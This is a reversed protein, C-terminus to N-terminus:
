LVDLAIGEPAPVDGAVRPALWAVLSPGHGRQPPQLDVRAEILPAEEGERYPALWAELGRRVAEPSAGGRRLRLGLVTLAQAFRGTALVHDLQTRAAGLRTALDRDYRKPAHATPRDPIAARGPAGPVPVAAVLGFGAMLAPDDVRLALPGAAESGPSDLGQARWDRPQVGWGDRAFGAAVGAALLWGAGVSHDTWPRTADDQPLRVRPLALAVFRSEESQRFGRWRTHTPSEMRRMLEREAPLGKWADLGLLKPSAHTLVPCQAVSGIGGLLQLTDLDEPEASWEADVLLAGLPRPRDPDLGEEVLTKWCLTQDLSPARHLEQVLERKTATAIAVSPAGSADIGSVLGHLATWRARLAVFHPDTLIRDLCTKFRRDLEALARAEQGSGAPPAAAPAQGIFGHGEAATAALVGDLLGATDLGGGTTDSM